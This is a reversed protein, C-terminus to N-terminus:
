EYDVFIHHIMAMGIVPGPILKNCLYGILEGLFQFSLVVAIGRLMM